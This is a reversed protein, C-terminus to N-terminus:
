KVKSNYTKVGEGGGMFNQIMENFKEFSIKKYKKNEEDTIVFLSDDIEKLEISALTYTTYDSIENIELAAGPVGLNGIPSVQAPIQDTFWVEIHRKDNKIVAKHCKYGLIKKEEKKNIEANEKRIDGTVIYNGLPLSVFNLYKNETYNYIYNSSLGTSFAQVGGTAEKKEDTRVFNNKYSLVIQCEDYPPIMAKYALAEGTLGAHLDKKKNYTIIGSNSKQAYVSLYGILLYIYVSILIIKKMRM